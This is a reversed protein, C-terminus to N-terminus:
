HGNPKPEDVKTKETTKSFLFLNGVTFFYQHMEVFVFLISKFFSIVNFKGNAMVLWFQKCIYDTNDSTLQKTIHIRYDNTKQVCHLWSFVQHQDYNEVSNQDWEQHNDTNKQGSNSECYPCFEAWIRTTASKM